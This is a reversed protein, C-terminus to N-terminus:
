EKQAEAQALELAEVQALREMVVQIQPDVMMEQVAQQVEPRVQLGQLDWDLAARQAREWEQVQAAALGLVRVQAQALELVQEQAAQLAQVLEQAQSV